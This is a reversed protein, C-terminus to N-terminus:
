VGGKLGGCVRQVGAAVGSRERSRASSCRLWSGTVYSQLLNLAAEALSVDHFREFAWRGREHLQRHPIRCLPVCGFDSPKVGTGRRGLAHHPESPRGCALCGHSSVFRLYEESRPTDVCAGALLAMGLLSQRIGEIVGRVEENGEAARAMIEELAEIVREADRFNAEDAAEQGIVAPNNKGGLLKNLVDYWYVPRGLAQKQSRIWDEYWQYDGNTTRYLRARQYLDSKNTRLGYEESLKRAIEEVTRM